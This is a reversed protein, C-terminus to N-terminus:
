SDAGSSMMTGRPPTTPTCSRVHYWWGGIIWALAGGLGGMLLAFLWFGSWSNMVFPSLTDWGPRPAGLDARVMGQDIREIAIALGVIWAAWRWDGAGLSQERFYRAPRLFLDRLAAPSLPSRPAESNRV